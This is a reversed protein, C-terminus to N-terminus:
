GVGSSVETAVVVLAESRRVVSCGEDPPRGRHGALSALADLGERSLEMQTVLVPSGRLSSPLTTAIQGLLGPM